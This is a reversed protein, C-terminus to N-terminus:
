EIYQGCLCSLLLPSGYGNGHELLEMNSRRGGDAGLSANSQPPPPPAIVQGGVFLTNLGANPRVPSFDNPGCMSTPSMNRRQTGAARREAELFHGLSPTNKNTSLADTTLRSCLSFLWPKSKYNSNKQDRLTEAGRGRTSRRSLELISSVGILSGLTISKDHFFSGTSETDLDSSSDTSSSPSGTLLTSFSISGNFDRNRVLGVRANLPRLGLPWGEEQCAKNKARTEATSPIDHNPKLFRKERRECSGWGDSFRGGQMYARVVFEARQVNRNDDYEITRDKIEYSVNFYFSIKRWGSKKIVPNGSIMTFDSKELIAMAANQYDKFLSVSPFRGNLCHRVVDNGEQFNCTYSGPSVETAENMSGFRGIQPSLYSEPSAFAAAAAAVPTRVLALPSTTTCESTESSCPRSIKHPRGRYPDSTPSHGAGPHLQRKRTLSTPLNPPPSPHTTPTPPSHLNPYRLTLPKRPRSSSHSAEASDIVAWLAADDLDKDDITYSLSSTM